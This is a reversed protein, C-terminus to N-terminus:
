TSLKERDDSRNHPHDRDNSFLDQLKAFEVLLGLFSPRGGRVAVAHM